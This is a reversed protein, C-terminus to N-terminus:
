KGCQNTGIFTFMQIRSNILDMVYLNGSRDFSLSQPVDLQNAGAGNTGSCGVVCRFGNKDSGVVRHSSAVSIFLYGDGDITVGIPCDLLITGNQIVTTGNREGYRFLQVRNNNCDAVYLDLNTTVFIGRPSNLMLSSSGSCRQGAVVIPYALPNRWSYKVVQHLAEQSCYLDDNIDIFLGYCRGDVPISSLLTPNNLSWRDIRRESCVNGNYVFIEDDDTVFLSYPSSMNALINTTVSSSGNSWILLQGNSPNAAVITNNRNIFLAYPYSGITGNTAFTTANTDWSANPCLKPRNFSEGLSFVNSKRSIPFIIIEEITIWLRMIASTVFRVLSKSFM